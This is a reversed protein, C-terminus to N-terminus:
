PNSHYAGASDTAGTMDGAKLLAGLHCQDGHRIHALFGNVLRSRLKADGGAIGIVVLHELALLEVRDADTRGVLQM